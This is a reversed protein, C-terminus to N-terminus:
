DDGEHVEKLSSRVWFTIMREAVGASYGLEELELLIDRGTGEDMILLIEEIMLDIDSKLTEPLKDLNISEDM